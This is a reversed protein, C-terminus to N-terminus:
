FYFTLIENEDGLTAIKLYRLTHDRDVKEYIFHSLDPSDGWTLSVGEKELLPKIEKIADEEGFYKYKGFANIKTKTLEKVKGQINALKKYINSKQTM